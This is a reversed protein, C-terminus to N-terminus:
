LHSFPIRSSSTRGLQLVPSPDHHGARLIAQEKGYSVQQQLGDHFHCPLVNAVPKVGLGSVHTRNSGPKSPHSAALAPWVGLDHSGRGRQGFGEKFIRLCMSGRVPMRLYRVGRPRNTCTGGCSGLDSQALSKPFGQHCPEFYLTPCSDVLVRLMRM